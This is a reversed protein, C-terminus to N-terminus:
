GRARDARGAFNLPPHRNRTGLESMQFSPYRRAGRLGARQVVVHAIHPSPIHDAQVFGDPRFPRLPTDLTFVCHFGTARSPANVEPVHLLIRGAREATRTSRSQAGTLRPLM